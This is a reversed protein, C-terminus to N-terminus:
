VAITKDAMHILVNKEVTGTKIKDFFEKPLNEGTLKVNQTIKKPSVIKKFYHFKFCSM